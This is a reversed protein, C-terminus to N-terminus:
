KWLFTYCCREKKRKQYNCYLIVTFWLSLCFPPHRPSLGQSAKHITYTCYIIISGLEWLWLISRFKLHCTMLSHILTHGSLQSMSHCVYYVCRWWCYHVHGTSPWPNFHKIVLSCKLSITATYQNGLSSSQLSESDRPQLQGKNLYAAKLNFRETAWNSTKLSCVAIENLHPTIAKFACYICCIVSFFLRSDLM